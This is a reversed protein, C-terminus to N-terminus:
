WGCTRRDLGGGHVSLCGVFLPGWILSALPLVNNCRPVWWCGYQGCILHMWYWSEWDAM